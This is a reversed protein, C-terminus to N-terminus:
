CSRPTGAKRARPTSGFELRDGESPDFDHVVDRDFDGDFVSTDAGAGGGM